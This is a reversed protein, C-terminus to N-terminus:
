SSPLLSSSGLSPVVQAAALREPQPLAPHLPRLARASPGEDRSCGRTNQKLARLHRGEEFGREKGLPCLRGGPRLLNRGYVADKRDDEM